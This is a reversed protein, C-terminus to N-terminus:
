LAYELGEDMRKFAAKWVEDSANSVNIQNKIDKPLQNASKLMKYTAFLIGAVGVVITPISEVLVGMTAISSGASIGCIYWPSKKARDAIYFKNSLYEYSDRLDQTITPVRGNEADSLATTFRDIYILAADRDKPNARLGTYKECEHALFYLEDAVVVLTDKVTDDISM